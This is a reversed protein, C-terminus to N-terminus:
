RGLVHMLAHKLSVDKCKQCKVGDKRPPIGLVREGCIAPTGMVVEPHCTGCILHSTLPGQDQSPQVKEEVELDAM